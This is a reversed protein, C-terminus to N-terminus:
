LCEILLKGSNLTSLTFPGLFLLGKENFYKIQGLNATTCTFSCVIAGDAALLYARHGVTTPDIWEVSHFLNNTHGTSIGSGATDLIIPNLTVQNAM